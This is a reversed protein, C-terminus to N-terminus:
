AQSLDEQRPSSESAQPLYFRKLCIQPRVDPSPPPPPDGASPTNKKEARNHLSRGRQKGTVFAPTATINVSICPLSVAGKEEEGKGRQRVRGGGGGGGRRWRSFATIRLDSLSASWSLHLAVPIPVSLWLQQCFPYFLGSLFLSVPISIYM